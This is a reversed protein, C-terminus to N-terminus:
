EENALFVRYPRASCLDSLYVNKVEIGWKFAKKRIAHTLTTDLEDGGEAIDKWTLEALTNRLVGRSSDALVSEADEVECLFKRIDKVKWAVVASITVPRGDKSTFSQAPLDQTAMVANETWVTEIWFPIMWHWGAKVLDRHPRGMRFVVAQEYVFLKTGVKFFEAISVILDILKGILETM